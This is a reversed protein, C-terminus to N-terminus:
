TNGAMSLTHVIQPAVCYFMPVQGHRIITEKGKPVPLDTVVNVIPNKYSHLSLCMRVERNMPSM